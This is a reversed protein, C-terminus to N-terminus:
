ISCYSRVYSIDWLCIQLFHKRIFNLSTWDQISARPCRKWCRKYTCLSKGFASRLCILNNSIYIYIHGLEIYVFHWTAYTQPITNDLMTCFLKLFCCKSFIDTSLLWLYTAYMSHCHCFVLWPCQNARISPLSLIKSVTCWLTDSYHFWLKAIKMLNLSFWPDTCTELIVQEDEPTAVCVANPISIAYLTLKKHNNTSRADYQIMITLGDHYV